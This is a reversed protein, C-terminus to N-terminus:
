EDGPDRGDMLERNRDRIIYSPRQKSAEYIRAIYEGMIGVSILQLGGLGLLLVVITAYGPVERGYASTQIIVILLYSLALFASLLGIISWARLPWSSFSLIAGAALRVLKPVSAKTAGSKRARITIPVTISRYGIWSILGKIFVHKERIARLAHVANPRLVNFDGVGEEITQETLVHFIDYFRKSLWKQHPSQYLRDQRAGCVIDAGSEEAIQIMRVLDAPDHQGDGDMYALADFGDGCENLGALLAAEKGFNRSFSIYSINSVSSSLSIIAKLTNDKSGDDVLFVSPEYGANNLKELAEMTVSKINDAENYVPIVLTVRRIRSRDNGALHEQQSNGLSNRTGKPDLDSYESYQSM